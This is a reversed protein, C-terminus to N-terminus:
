DQKGLREVEDAIDAPIAVGDHRLGLLVQAYRQRHRDIGSTRFASALAPTAEDPHDFLWLRAFYSVGGDPSVLLRMKEALDGSPPPPYARERWNKVLPVGDWGEYPRFELDMPWAKLGTWREAIAGDIVAESVYWDPVPLNDPRVVGDGSWTSMDPRHPVASWPGGGANAEVSVGPPANIYFYHPPERKALRGSVKRIHIRQAHLRGKIMLSALADVVRASVCIWPGGGTGIIDPWARGGDSYADVHDEGRFGITGGAVTIPEVSLLGLATWRPRPGPSLHFLTPLPV